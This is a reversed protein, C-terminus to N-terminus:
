KLKEWEFGCKPCREIICEKKNKDVEFDPPEENQWTQVNLGWDNLQESDWENALTDWDWEGFGVNDKIVFEKWQEDTLEKCQKVWKDNIEKYGLEKLAKYRMNGGQIVNNEDVIIPRLEMMQPFEQLSKVLKKFKDDKILRPNTKNPKIDTLNM